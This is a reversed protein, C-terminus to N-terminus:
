VSNIVGEINRFRLENRVTQITFTQLILIIFTFSMLISDYVNFSRFLIIQVSLVLWCLICLGFYFKFMNAQIQSEKELEMISYENLKKMYLKLKM